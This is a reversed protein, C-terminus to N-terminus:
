GATSNLFPLKPLVKKFLKLLKREFKIVPFYYNGNKVWFKTNGKGNNQAGIPWDL